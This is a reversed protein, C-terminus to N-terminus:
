SEDYDVFVMKMGETEVGLMRPKDAFDPHRKKLYFQIDSSNGDAINKILADRVDDHLEWEADQIAQNFEKDEKLWTYFQTRSYGIARCINTIHGRTDKWLQVARKKADVLQTKNVKNLKTTM